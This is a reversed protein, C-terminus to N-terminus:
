YDKPEINLARCAQIGERMVANLAKSGAMNARALRRAYVKGYEAAREHFDALYLGGKRRREEGAGDAAGLLGRRKQGAGLHGGACPWRRAHGVVLCRGLHLNTSGNPDHDCVPASGDYRHRRRAGLEALNRLGSKQRASEVERHARQSHFLPKPPKCNAKFIRQAYKLAPSGSACPLSRCTPRRYKAAWAKALSIAKAEIPKLGADAEALAKQSDKGLQRARDIEEMQRRETAAAREQIREREAFHSQLQEDHRRREADREQVLTALSERASALEKERGRLDHQQREIQAAQEALQTRAMALSEELTAARAQVAEGQRVAEAQALEFAARQEALATQQAAINAAAIEQAASQAALWVREM